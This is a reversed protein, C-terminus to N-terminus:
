NEPADARLLQAVTPELATLEGAMADLLQPPVDAKGTVDPRSLLMQQRLLTPPHSADTRHEERAALRRWRERQAPTVSGVFRREAAWVDVNRDNRLALHMANMCHEAGFFAGLTSVTADTGAAVAALEDARYEARQGSRAAIRGLGVALAAITLSLPLLVLPVVYEVFVFLSTSGSGASGFRWRRRTTRVDPRLLWTWRHLSEIATGVLLTSRIDGNVEHGCEHGLVALRQRSDLAEWLPLGITLVQRGHVGARGISANFDPSAVLVDPTRSGTARAVEDLVAFCAPATARTLVNDGSPVHGLRPRVEWAIILLLVTAIVKVVAFADTSWIWVAGVALLVTVLHVLVAIASGVVRRAGSAHLDTGLLRQHNAIV